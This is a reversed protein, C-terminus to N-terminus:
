GAGRAATATECSRRRIRSAGRSRTATPFTSSTSPRWSEPKEGSTPPRPRADIRARVHSKALDVLGAISNLDHLYRQLNALVIRLEDDSLELREGLAEYSLSNRQVVLHYCDQIAELINVQEIDSLGPMRLMGALESLEDSRLGDRVLNEMSTQLIEFCEDILVGHKEYSSVIHRISLYAMEELLCDLQHLLYRQERFGGREILAEVEGRLQM